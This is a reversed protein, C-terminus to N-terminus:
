FVGYLIAQFLAIRDEKKLLNLRKALRTANVFKVYFEVDTTVIYNDNGKRYSLFNGMSEYEICAASESTSCEFGKDRLSKEYGESCLLVYDTDTDFVPPDCIYSSGTRAKAKVYDEFPKNM